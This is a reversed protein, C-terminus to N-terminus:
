KLRAQKKIANICERCYTQLGDKANSKKNFFTVEKVVNCKKCEKETLNERAKERLEAMTKSRKEHAKTKNERGEDTKYYDTLTTSIKAERLNENTDTNNDVNIVEEINHQHRAKKRCEICQAEYGQHDHKNTYFYTSCLKKLKCCKTCRRAEEDDCIESVDDESIEESERCKEFQKLWHNDYDNHEATTKDECDDCDECCDDQGAFADHEKQFQQLWHRKYNNELLKYVKINVINETIKKNATSSDSNGDTSVEKKQKKHLQTCPKCSPMYVNENPDNKRKQITFNELKLMQNCKNCAIKYLNGDKYKRERTKVVKYTKCDKCSNKYGDHAKVHKDFCNIDKEKECIKCVKVENYEEGDSLNDKIEQRDNEINKIKEQRKNEVWEKKQINKCSRCKDQYVAEGNKNGKTSFRDIKLIKDCGKCELKILDGDEDYKRIRKRNKEEKDEDKLGQFQDNNFMECMEKRHEIALRKAEEDGYKNIKFMKTYTRKKGNENVKNTIIKAVWADNKTDYTVGRTGSSNDAAYTSFTKNNNNEKYNTVRLNIERNDMTDRNIHDTMAGKTVIMHFMKQEKKGNEKKGLYMMAYYKHLKGGSKVAYILHKNILSVYKKDTKMIQGHNLEVEIDNENIDRIKNKIVYGKNENEVHLVAEAKKFALEKEEENNFYINKTFDLRNNVLLEIKWYNNKDKINGRYKGGYWESPFTMQHQQNSM